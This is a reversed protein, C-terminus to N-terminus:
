CYFCDCQSSRGDNCQCHLNFTGCTFIAVQSAGGCFTNCSNRNANCLRCVPENYWGGYCTACNPFGAGPPPVAKQAEAPTFAPTQLSELAALNVFLEEQAAAPVADNQPTEAGVAGAFSFAM